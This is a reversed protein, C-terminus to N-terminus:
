HNECFSLCISVADGVSLIPAQPLHTERDGVDRIGPYSSLLTESTTTYIVTTLYLTSIYPRVRM